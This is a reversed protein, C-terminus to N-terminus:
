RDRRVIVNQVPTNRLPEYKSDLWKALEHTKLHGITASKDVSPGDLFILKPPSAKLLMVVEDLLPQGHPGLHAIKETGIYKIANPRKSRWCLEAPYGFAFFTEDADTWEDIVDLQERLQPDAPAVFRHYYQRMAMDWQGHLPSILVFGFWLFGVILYHPAVRDGMRASAILLHVSHATAMVLPPLAIALYTRRFHPGVAALYIAVLLWIWLLFIYRKPYCADSAGACEGSQRGGAQGFFRLLPSLLAALALVLALEMDQLHNEIWAFPPFASAGAGPQFYQRNFGVVADWAESLDSTIWLVTVILLVMTLWGAIVSAMRSIAVRRDIDRRIWLYLTHIVAAATAALATQKFAFGIAGCAGALLCARIRRHGGSAARLYFWFCALEALVFYTSPRNAGVHYIHINLFTVGLLTCAVAQVSGYMRRYIVILMAAAGMVAVCQVLWVGKIDGGGLWLGLANIWFIGPPKNDWVDVYLTAGELLQRGYHAFLYGDIDDVRACGIFAAVAVVLFVAFGGGVFIITHLAARRRDYAEPNCSNVM